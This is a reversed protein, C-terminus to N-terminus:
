ERGYHGGLSTYSDGSILLQVKIEQETDTDFIETYGKEDTAGRWQTGDESYAVYRTNAYPIGDDDTFHFQLGYKNQEDEDNDGADGGPDGNDGGGADEDALVELVGPRMV